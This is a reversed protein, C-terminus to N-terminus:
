GLYATELTKRRRHAPLRKDSSKNRTLLLRIFCAKEMGTMPHGEPRLMAPMLSQMTPTDNARNDNLANNPGDNQSSCPITVNVDIPSWFGM